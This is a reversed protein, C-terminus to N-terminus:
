QSKGVFKMPKQSFSVLKPNLITVFVTGVPRNHVKNGYNSILELLPDGELRAAM